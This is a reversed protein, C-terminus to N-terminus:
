LVVIDSVVSLHLWHQCSRSGLVCHMAVVQLCRYQSYARWWADTMLSHQKDCASHHIKLCAQANPKDQYGEIHQLAMGRLKHISVVLTGVDKQRCAQGASLLDDLTTCWAWLAFVHDGLPSAVM